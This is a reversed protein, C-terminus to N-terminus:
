GAVAITGDVSTQHPGASKVDDAEHGGFIVNIHVAVVCERLVDKLIAPVRLNFGINVIDHHAIIINDQNM